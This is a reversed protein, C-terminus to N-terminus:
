VRETWLLQADQRKTAIGNRLNLAKGRWGTEEDGGQQLAQNRWSREALIKKRKMRSSLGVGVRGYMGKGINEVTSANKLNELHLRVNNMIIQLRRNKQLLLKKALLAPTAATILVGGFETAFEQPEPDEHGHEHEHTLYEEAAKQLAEMLVSMWDGRMAAFLVHTLSAADLAKGIIHSPKKPGAKLTIVDHGHERHHVAGHHHSLGSGFKREKGDAIERTMERYENQLIENMKAYLTMEDWAEVRYMGKRSFLEGTYVGYGPDYTITMDSAYTRQPGGRSLGGRM